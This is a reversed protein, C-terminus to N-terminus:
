GGDPGRREGAIYVALPTALARPDQRPDRALVLLSAPGGVTLTGPGRGEGDLLGWYAAPAASVADIVAAGDLGAAVMLDIEDGSIGAEHTNGLDTGYLVTVGAARLRRLNDRTSRAGGFATLTSICARGSWAAVTADALPEVPTHALVDVGVRAAIAAEHDGLAHSAVKLGRAHARDVAARLTREDLVPSGTIPLKIVRAGHDALEDVAATAENPGGVERGYGDAGWDRTPYGRRATIMPGAAVLRLAPPTDPADLWALPAGLDVVAAVGGNLLREGAPFYALHVHSDVIAPAIFRGSVDEGPLGPDVVGIAAIHGDRVELDVRGHGLVEAGRLVFHTTDVARPSPVASATGAAAPATPEPRQPDCALLLCLVARRM